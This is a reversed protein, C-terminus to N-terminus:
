FFSLTSEKKNKSMQESIDASLSAGTAFVVVSLLFEDLILVGGVFGKLFVRLFLFGQPRGKDANLVLGLKRNGPGGFIRM